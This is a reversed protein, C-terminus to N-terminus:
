KQFFGQGSLITSLKEDVDSPRNSVNDNLEMPTTTETDIAATVQVGLGMEAKQSSVIIAEEGFHKKVMKLADSMSSASFTKLRM